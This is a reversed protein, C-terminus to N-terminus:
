IKNTVNFNFRKFCKMPINAFLDNLDDIAQSIDREKPLVLNMITYSETHKLGLVHGLEHILVRETLWGPMNKRIFVMDFVGGQITVGLVPDEMQDDLVIVVYRGPVGVSVDTFLPCEFKSNIKSTINDTIYSLQQTSHVCAVFSLFFWTILLKSMM